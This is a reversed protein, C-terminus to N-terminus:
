SSTGGSVAGSVAIVTSATSSAGKVDDSLESVKSTLNDTTEAASGLAVGLSNSMETLSAIIKDAYDGLDQISAQLQASADSGRDEPVADVSAMEVDPEPALGLSVDERPGKVRTRKSVVLSSDIDSKKRKGMPNTCVVIGCLGFTLIFIKLYM